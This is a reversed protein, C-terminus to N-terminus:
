NKSVKIRDGPRIRSTRMKNMKKLEKISVGYKKAIDWLTDGFRVTYFTGTEKQVMKKHKALRAKIENMNEPVWIALKQKPRIYQGYRLGNWSRIRSARTNFQEAIGGLTDGPKVVYIIKKHGPVNKVKTRSTKHHKRKSPRYSLSAYYAAKNQPVPILLYKGARIFNSRLKNTSRIVSMSTHYKQAITSLTEGSRIRHRVWSRKKSDPIKAYREKFIERKGKPLYLTFDKIGPPTVWRLVAPNIERIFAYTTDTLQAILNLDVSESITISDVRVPAKKQIYFGFKEPNEAIITAALFTPVYNRTQRPLRKLKWFDRTHYRRINREVKRPNCNYGSLALYWDGFREYLDALHEAAARTAKLVDRREDFWWNHRLGYYKGTASIFQWMGVARAYSRARPNFGSEIMALYALEEPLNKERLVSKVMEVYRGSRELWRTFVFRGRTQFYKIALRVKRNLTLPIGSSSDIVTSEGYLASDAINITEELETIDERIEEAELPENSSLYIREYQKSMQRFASDYKAWAQLTNRERETFRSMLDFAHNFYLEAGLTDQDALKEEAQRNDDMISDLRVITSQSIWINEPLDSPFQTKTLSEKQLEQHQQCGPMFSFIIFIIILGNLRKM